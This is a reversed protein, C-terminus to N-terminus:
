VPLLRPLEPAGVLAPAVSVAGNLSLGPFGLRCPQLSVLALLPLANGPLPFARGGPGQPGAQTPTQLGQRGPRPLGCSGSGGRRLGTKVQPESTPPSPLPLPPPPRRPLSPTQRADLGKWAGMLGPALPSCLHARGLDAGSLPVQTWCMTGMHLGSFNKKWGERQPDSVLTGVAAKGGNYESSGEWNNHCSGLSTIKM